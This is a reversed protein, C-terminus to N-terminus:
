RFKYTNIIEYGLTKDKYMDGLSDTIGFAFEQFYVICNSDYDVYLYDYVTHIENGQKSEKSRVCISDSIDVIHKAIQAMEKEFESQTLM